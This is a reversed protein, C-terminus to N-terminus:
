FKYKSQKSYKTTEYLARSVEEGTEIEVLRLSISYEKLTKGGLRKDEMVVEGSLILDAGSAKGIKKIDSAKVMGGHQYKIEKLIRERDKISIIDFEGDDFLKNLIKNNLATIPFNDESTQNEVEGIFMKPVKYGHERLYRKYRGTSTLKGLLDNVALETDTAVWENTITLAKADGAQTTLREAKMTPGCSALVFVSLVLVLLKKM